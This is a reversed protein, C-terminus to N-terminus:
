LALRDFLSRAWRAEEEDDGAFEVVSAGVVDRRQRLGTLLTELAARDLGGPTPCAVSAFAAPDLVDLDVHVYIHRRTQDLLAELSQAPAAAIQQPSIHRIAQVRLLEAEAPDIDRTGVYVLDAPSLLAGACARLTADGEGLLLRVPMGHLTGSPSSAPTNADAHADLWVVSLDPWRQRLYGIPVIELSCDGGLSFVRAPQVRELEARFARLNQVITGYNQISQETASAEDSFGAIEVFRVGDGAARLRTAGDAIARAAGAGQWQPFFVYLSEEAARM